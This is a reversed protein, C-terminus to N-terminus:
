GHVCLLPILASDCDTSKEKKKFDFGDKKKNAYNTISQLNSHAKWVDHLARTMYKMQDMIGDNM